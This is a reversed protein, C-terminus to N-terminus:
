RYGLHPGAAWIAAAGWSEQIFLCVFYVHQDTWTGQGGEQTMMETLTDSFEQKTVKEGALTLLTNQHVHLIHSVTNIM